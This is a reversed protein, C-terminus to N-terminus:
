PTSATVTVRGFAGNNALAVNKALASKETVRVYLSRRGCVETAIRRTKPGVARAKALITRGNGALLAVEYAAAKPVVANVVLTGDLPTSLRLLWTKKSTRTFQKRFVASRGATWPQLVDKEAASLAADNPFFMHSVTLWSSTLIGARREDMVRYTEAWGEGPNLEYHAGEDGPFVESRAARACVQSASAWYKPGWEVALWPPNLRNMAIHHGYEHRVVEEPTTGDPLVEGMSIMEDPSYCGLARAGCVAEVEDLPAIYATLQSIEPGHALKVLFEAWTECAPSGLAYTDSVLVTVTEGTSTSTAGCHWAIATRALRDRRVIAGPLDIARALPLQLPYSAPSSDARSARGVALAVLGACLGVLLAVLARRLLVRTV